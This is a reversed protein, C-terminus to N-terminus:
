LNLFHVLLVVILTAAAGYIRDKWQNWIREITKKGTVYEVVPDLQEHIEQFGEKMNTSVNQIYMIMLPHADCVNAHLNENIKHLLEDDSVNKLHKRQIDKKTPIM